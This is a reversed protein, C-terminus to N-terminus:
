RDIRVVLRCGTSDPELWGARVARRVANSVTQRSAWPAVAARLEGPHLRAVGDLQARRLAYLAIAVWLPAEGSRAWADTAADGLSPAQQM